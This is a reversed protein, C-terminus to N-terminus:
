TKTGQHSCVTIARGKPLGTIVGFRTFHGNEYKPSPMENEPYIQFPSPMVGEQESTMVVRPISLAAQRLKQAERFHTAGLVHKTPVGSTVESIADDAPSM